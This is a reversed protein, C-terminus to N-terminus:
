RTACLLATSKSYMNEKKPFALNFAVSSIFAADPLSCKLCKPATELSFADAPGGRDSYGCGCLEKGYHMGKVITTFNYPNGRM